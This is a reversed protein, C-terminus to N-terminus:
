QVLAAGWTGADCTFQDTLQGSAVDVYEFSMAHDDGIEAIIEAGDSKTITFQYTAADFDWTGSEELGYSAFAFKFTHDTYCDFTCFGGEFSFLVVAEAIGAGAEENLALKEDMDGVDTTGAYQVTQGDSTITGACEMTLVLGGDEAAEFTGTDAVAKNGYVDVVLEVTGDQYLYLFLNADVGFDVMSYTGDFEYAVAAAAAADERTNAMPVAEAGEQTYAATRTDASVSLVAGKKGEDYPVLTYDYGGEANEAIEWTGETITGVLDVYTRNHSLSLTALDDETGVFELYSVGQEEEYSSVFKSDAGDIDHNYYVDSSGAGSVATMNNYLIEGDYGCQDLINGAWDYFTVTYPATGEHVTGALVEDRDASCKYDYPTEEVTYIGAYNSKNNAFGAYFVSGLVPDEEYFHFFYVFDGYGEAFYAYTYFGDTIMELPDTPHVVPSAEASDEPRSEVPVSAADSGEGAGSEVSKEGCGALGGLMLCGVVAIGLLKKINRM